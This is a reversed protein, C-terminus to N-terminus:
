VKEDPNEKHWMLLTFECPQKAHSFVLAQLFPLDLLLTMPKKLLLCTLKPLCKNPAEYLPFTLSPTLIDKPLMRPLM